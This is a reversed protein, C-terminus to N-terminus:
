SSILPIPRANLSVHPRAFIVAPIRMTSERGRSIRNKTKALPMIRSIGIAMTAMATTIM